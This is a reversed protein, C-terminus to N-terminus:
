VSMQKDFGGSKREVGNWIRTFHISLKLVFLYAGYDSLTFVRRKTVDEGEFLKSTCNNVKDLFVISDDFDSGLKPLYFIQTIHQKKIAAIHNDIAEASKSSKETILKKYKALNFIPAYVINSDFHRDNSESIDCTNSFVISPAKQINSDPLNVVLMDNLGDGQYILNNNRLHSTYFRGDVNKPFDRISEFMEDSAPSSLYRPLYLKINDSLIM